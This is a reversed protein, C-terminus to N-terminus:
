QVIAALIVAVIAIAAAATTVAFKRSIKLNSFVSFYDRIYVGTIAQLAGCVIVVLPLSLLILIGWNGPLSGTAAPTGRVAFHRYEAVLALFALTAIAVGALRLATINPKRQVSDPLLDTQRRERAVEDPAPPDSHKQSQEFAALEFRLQGGGCLTRHEVTVDDSGCTACLDRQGDTEQVAIGAREAACSVQVRMEAFKELTGDLLRDVLGIMTGTEYADCLYEGTVDGAIVSEVSLHTTHHDGCQQCRISRLYTGSGIEKLRSPARNSPPDKLISRHRILSNLVKREQRPDDPKEALRRLVSQLKDLLANAWVQQVEDVQHGNQSHIVWDDYTSNGSYKARHQAADHRKRWAELDSRIQAEMSPACVRRLLHALADLGDEYLAM